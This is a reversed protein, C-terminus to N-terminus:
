QVYPNDEEAAKSAPIGAKLNKLAIEEATCAIPLFKVWAKGVDDTTFDIGYDEAILLGLLTYVIDDDAPVGDMGGRTFRFCENVGYRKYLPNQAKTWYDVPPFQDGIQKAWEEIDRSKWGEVIAGLTCGAFRALMAGQLKEIYVSEEFSNWLRRKGSPRLSLIQGYDDPEKRSLNEDIPLAQIEALYGDLSQKVRDMLGDTGQAGYENKLRAYEVIKDLEAHFDWENHEM